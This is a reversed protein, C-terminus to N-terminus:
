RLGERHVRLLRSLAGLPGTAVAAADHINWKRVKFQLRM